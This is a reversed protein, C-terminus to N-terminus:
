RSDPRWENARVQLRSQMEARFNHAITLLSEGRKEITKRGATVMGLQERAERVRTQAAIQDADQTVKAKVLAARATAAVTVLENWYREFLRAEIIAAEAVSDDFQRHASAELLAWIGFRGSSEALAQNLAEYNTEVGPQQILDDEFTRGAIEASVRIRRANDIALTTRLNSM